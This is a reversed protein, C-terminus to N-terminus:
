SKKWYNRRTPMVSIDLYYQADKFRIWEGDRDGRNLSISYTRRGHERKNFHARGKRNVMNQGTLWQEMELIMKQEADDQINEVWPIAVLDLDRHMSGHILLAYGWHQAIEKLVEFYMAYLGPKAHTPKSM